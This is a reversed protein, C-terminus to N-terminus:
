HITLAVTHPHEPAQIRGPPTHESGGCLGQGRGVICVVQSSERVKTCAAGGARKM